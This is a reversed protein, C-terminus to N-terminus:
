KKKKEECSKCLTAMPLISMRDTDIMQHCEGCFGYTGDAIRMLAANIDSLKTTLENVIAAVRDHNSEESAETDSAANDIARDPDTFPDQQTLEDIRASIETKEKELHKRVEDLVDNPFGTM